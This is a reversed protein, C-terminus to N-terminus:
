GPWPSPPAFIKLSAIIASSYTPDHLGKGFWCTTGGNWVSINGINAPSIDCVSKGHFSDLSTASPKDFAFIVVVAIPLYLFAYVLLAWGGFLRKARGSRV